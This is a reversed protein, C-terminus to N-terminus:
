GLNYCITQGRIQSMEDLTDIHFDCSHNFISASDHALSWATVIFQASFTDHTMSKYKQWQQNGYLYKLNSVFKVFYCVLEISIPM